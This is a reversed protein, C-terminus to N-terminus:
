LLEEKYVEGEHIWIKGKFSWVDQRMTSLCNRCVYLNYAVPSNRIDSGTDDCSVFDMEFNCFKCNM